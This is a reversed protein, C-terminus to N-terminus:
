DEQQQSAPSHKNTHADYVLQEHAQLVYSACAILQQQQQQQDQVTRVSVYPSQDIGDALGNIGICCTTTRSCAAQIQEKPAPNASWTRESPLSPTPFTHLQRSNASLFCATRFIITLANCLLIPSINQQPPIM